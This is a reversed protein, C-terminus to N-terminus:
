ECFKNLFSLSLICKTKAKQVGFTVVCKTIKLYKNSLQDIIDVKIHGSQGSPINGAKGGNGSNTIISPTHPSLEATTVILRCRLIKGSIVSSYQGPGGGGGVRGAPYSYSDTTHTINAIIVGVGPSPLIATNM